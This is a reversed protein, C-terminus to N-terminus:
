CMFSVSFYCKSMYEFNVNFSSIQIFSLRWTDSHGWTNLLFLSISLLILCKELAPDMYLSPIMSYTRLSFASFWQSGAPGSTKCIWKIVRNINTKNRCHTKAPEPSTSLKEIEAQIDAHKPSCYDARRVSSRIPWALGTLVWVGSCWWVSVHGCWRLRSLLKKWRKSQTRIYTHYLSPSFSCQNQCVSWFYCCCTM